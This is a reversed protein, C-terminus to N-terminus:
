YIIITVKSTTSDKLIISGKNDQVNLTNLLNKKPILKLATVFTLKERYLKKEVINMESYPKEQKEQKLSITNNMINIDSKIKPLSQIKKITREPCMETLEPNEEIIETKINNNLSESKLNLISCNNTTSKKSYTKPVFSKNPKIMEVIPVKETKNIYAQPESTLSWYDLIVPDVCKSESNKLNNKEKNTIEYNKINDYASTSYFSSINEKSNTFDSTITQESIIPKPNSVNKLIDSNEIFNEELCTSQKDSKLLIDPNHVISELKLDNVDESDYNNDQSEDLLVEDLPEVKINCENLSQCSNLPANLIPNWNDIEKKITKINDSSSNYINDYSKDYGDDCIEVKIDDPPLKSLRRSKRRESFYEKWNVKTKRRTIKLPSEIQPTCNITEENMKKRNEIILKDIPSFRIM